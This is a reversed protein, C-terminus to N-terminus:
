SLDTKKIICPLVIAVSFIAIFPLFSPNLALSACAMALFLPAIVWKGRNKIFAYCTFLILALVTAISFGIAVYNTDGYRALEIYLSREYIVYLSPCAIAEMLCVSILLLSERGCFLLYVLFIVIGLLFAGNQIFYDKIGLSLAGFVSVLALFLTLIVATIICVHRPRKSLKAENALRRRREECFFLALFTFAGCGFFLFSVWEARFFSLEGIHFSRVSNTPIARIFCSATLFVLSYKLEGGVSLYRKLLFWFAVTLCTILVIGVPLTWLKNTDVSFLPIAKTTEYIFPIFGLFVSVGALRKKNKESFVAIIAFICSIGLSLAIVNELVIEGILKILPERERGSHVFLERYVESIFSADRLTTMVVGIAFLSLGVFLLCAAKNKRKLSM